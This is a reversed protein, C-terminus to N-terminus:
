APAPSPTSETRPFPRLSTIHNAHVWDLPVVTMGGREFRDLFSSAYPNFGKVWGM